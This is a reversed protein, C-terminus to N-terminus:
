GDVAEGLDFLMWISTGGADNGSVRYSATLRGILPLGLGLGPSHPNPRMGIGDDEVVVLLGEDRLEARISVVGATGEPFAHVVANGVAEAVALEIDMPDAGAEAVFGAISRRASTVSDPRAPLEVNLPMPGELVMM